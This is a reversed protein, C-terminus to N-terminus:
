RCDLIVCSVGALCVSCTSVGEKKSSEVVVAGIRPTKGYLSTLLEVTAVVVLESVEWSGQWNGQEVEEEVEEDVEEDVKENDMEDDLEDDM